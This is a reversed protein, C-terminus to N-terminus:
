MEEKYKIIKNHITSAYIGKSRKVVASTLIKKQNKIDAFSSDSFPLLYNEIPFAYDMDHPIIMTEVGLIDAMNNMVTQTPTAAANHSVWNQRVKDWRQFGNGVVGIEFKLAEADKDLNFTNRELFEIICQQDMSILWNRCNEHFTGFYGIYLGDAICLLLKQQDNMSNVDVGFLYCLFLCLGTPNKESFDTSKTYRNCNYYNDHHLTPSVWHHDLCTLRDNVVSIDVFLKSKIQAITPTASFIYSKLYDQSNINCFGNFPLSLYKQVLLGSIFGDIDQHIIQGDLDWLCLAELVEFLEERSFSDKWITGM